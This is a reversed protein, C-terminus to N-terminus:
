NGTAGGSDYAIVPKGCALSEVPTIGFDEEGPFLFARSGSYLRRLEEDSDIPEAGPRSSEGGIDLIDAGDEVLSRAHELAHARDFFQGGDSFSDPTVNVIGM